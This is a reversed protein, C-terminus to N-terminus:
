IAGKLLASIQSMINAGEDPTPTIGTFQSIDPLLSIIFTVSIIVIFFIMGANKIIVSVRRNKPILVECRDSVFFGRSRYKRVLLVLGAIALGYQVLTYAGVMFGLSSYEAIDIEAGSMMLESMELLKESARAFPLPIVSGFFNILIHLGITYLIKGTRSYIYALLAGLMAAYFVQFINGHFVGFSVASVIIAIRDGYMGLKDMLLKRFILEEVIPGIIVAVLIIIWVPSSLILESTNNSLDYGVLSSFFVSLINGLLNGVTMLGEAILFYVIFEKISLIKKSRVTNRMPRVILWMAPFALIYMSVVQLIWVFYPSSAIEASKDAGFIISIGFQIAVASLNAIILFVFLSIFFRSFRKRARMEDDLSFDDWRPVGHYGYDTSM